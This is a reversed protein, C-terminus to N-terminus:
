KKVELEMGLTNNIVYDNEYIEYNNNIIKINNIQNLISQKIDELDYMSCIHKNGLIRFTPSNKTTISFIPKNILLYELVKSPLFPQIKDNDLITDFVILVDADNNMINLCDEYNVKDHIKFIDSIEYKNILKAKSFEINGYQHVEVNKIEEPNEIKLESLAKIFLEIQRLGYINGFHIFKIKEKNFKPKSNILNKYMPWDKVYTIPIVISKSLLKKDNGIMYDRLEESMFILKDAYKFACKQYIKKYYILKQLLYMVINNKKRNSVYPNNIIPDSFSAYWKIKNGM